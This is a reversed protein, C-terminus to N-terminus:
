KKGKAKEVTIECMNKQGKKVEFTNPNPTTDAIIPQEKDDMAGVKIEYVGAPLGTKGNLGNLRFAGDSQITGYFQYQEGSFVVQGRDLLTGDTFKVTGNVPLLGNSCGCVTILFGFCIASFIKSNTM